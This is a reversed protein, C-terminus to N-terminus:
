ETGNANRLRLDVHLEARVLDRFSGLFTGRDWVEFRRRGFLGAKRSIIQHKRYPRWDAPELERM